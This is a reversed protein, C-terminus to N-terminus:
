GNNTKNYKPNKGNNNRYVELQRTEERKAGELTKVNGVKQIHTFKKGDAEHEAARKELNKTVGKYVVKNGEKLNYNVVNRKKSM